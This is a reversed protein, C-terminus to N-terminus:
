RDSEGALHQLTARNLLVIKGRGTALWGAQRWQGLVRAVTQRTLGIRRAIVEQSVTVYGTPGAARDLQLLMRALRGSADLFVLASERESSGSLRKAMLELVRQMLKPEAALQQLFAERPIVILEVATQARATASRSQMTVLAVDGFMDGPHMVNIVLERGDPTSLMIEISGSHVIYAAEAPDAENFLVHGKPLRQLHCNAALAQITQDSLDSFLPVRRLSETLDLTLRGPKTM